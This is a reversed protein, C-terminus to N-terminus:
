TQIHIHKVAHNSKIEQPYQAATIFCRIFHIEGTTQFQHFSQELADACGPSQSGQLIWLFDLACGAGGGRRDYVKYVCILTAALGSVTIGLDEITDDLQSVSFGAPLAASRLGESMECIGGASM